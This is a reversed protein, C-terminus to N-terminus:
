SPTTDETTSDAAPGPAPVPYIPAVQGPVFQPSVTQPYPQPAVYPQPLYQAPPYQPPASPQPMYQQQPMPQAAAQQGAQAGGQTPGLGLLQVPDVANRIPDVADRIPGVSKQFERITKGLAAGVEPLKGPGVVILAIVLILLLHMPTLGAM